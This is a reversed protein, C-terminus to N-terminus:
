IPHLLERLSTPLEGQTPASDLLPGLPTASMTHWYLVRLPRQLSRLEIIETPQVPPHGPPASERAGLLALVGAFAKATYTQDLSLGIGQAREAAAAASPAEHGYGPGLHSDDVFLSKSLQWLDTTAGDKRLAARSLALVTARGMWKRTAVAVGLVRAQLRHRQMGALLGAVTGGSGLAAVIVDPKPLQGARIQEVLETAGRLYGLTGLASSGGVPILMDGRRLLRAVGVPVAAVSRVPYAELGAGLAARLVQEAHETRPQPCLVAAAKLGLERAFLSTALVHHSGAAGITVVRRSGRRVAEALILELKRVKNGGYLESTVGDDKIWLEGDDLDLGEARFVPTPYRGLV